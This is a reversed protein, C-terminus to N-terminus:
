RSKVKSKVAAIVRRVPGQKPLVSPKAGPQTVSTAGMGLGGRTVTSTQVKGDPQLPVDAATGPQGAPPSAAFDGRHINITTVNAPRQRSWSRDVPYGVYPVVVHHVVTPDYPYYDWGYSGHPGPNVVGDGIPCGCGTPAWM